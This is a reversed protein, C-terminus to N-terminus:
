LLLRILLNFYTLDCSMCSNLIVAYSNLHISTNPLCLLYVACPTIIVIFRPFYEFIYRDFVVFIPSTSQFVLKYSTWYVLWNEVALFICGKCVYKERQMSYWFDIMGSKVEVFGLISSKRDFISWWIQQKMEDELITLRFQHM